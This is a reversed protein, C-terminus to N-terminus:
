ATLKTEQVVLALNLVTQEDSLYDLGEPLAYRRRFLEAAQHFLDERIPPELEDRRMTLDLILDREDRTVRALIRGRLAPDAGFTNVRAQQATLEEPVALRADRVVLTEAALDGLRRRLPDIFAAIGGTLMAFPLTDLPRLLNRILVDGFRLRGGRASIVRLRFLRKGPSQGAARTEFLVFYGFDVCFVGLFVFALGFQGGLGWFAWVIALRVVLLVLQDVVWAMARTMLGSVHYHFHVQEPTTIRYRTM